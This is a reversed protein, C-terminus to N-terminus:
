VPTRVSLSPFSTTELLVYELTSIGVSSNATPLVSVSVGLASEESPLAESTLQDTSPVALTVIALQSVFVPSDVNEMSPVPVAVM